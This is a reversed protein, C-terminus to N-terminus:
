NTQPAAGAAQLDERTVVGRFVRNQVVPVLAQNKRVAAALVTEISANWEAIVRVPHIYPGVALLSLDAGPPILGPLLDDDTFLGMFQQENVLAVARLPEDELQRIAEDLFTEPGVIPISRLPIEHLTKMRGSGEGRRARNGEQFGPLFFITFFIGAFAQSKAGDSAIIKVARAAGTSM